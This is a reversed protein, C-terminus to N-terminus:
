SKAADLQELAHRYYAGGAAGTSLHKTIYARIRQRIGEAEAFEQDTWFRRRKDFFGIRALFATGFYEAEEVSDDDPSTRFSGDSQLSETLCWNLMKKIEEAIARRQSDAAFNWGYHFVVVVDMNNHNSYSGGELWGQPYNLDKLALLTNVVKSLDPVNGSLYSLMHFTISLDDVFYIKGDHKYREGWWGTEPNRVQNLVIQMMASKMGTAWRYGAPQDHLILRVLDALSENLERRHDVGDRAIDSVAISSFYDRLKEPSNIRDLFRLPHISRHEQAYDYTADLKFFWQTYCHGWSGDTSDQQQSLRGEEPHILVRELDALRRDIRTFEATSGILWKVEMLIQHACAVERGQREGDIVKQALLSVRKTRETRLQRYRPNFREFDQWIYSRYDIDIQPPPQTSQACAIGSFGCLM